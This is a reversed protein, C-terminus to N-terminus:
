SGVFMRFYINYVMYGMIISCVNWKSLLHFAVWFYNGVMDHQKYLIYMYLLDIGDCWLLYMKDWLLLLFIHLSQYVYVYFFLFKILDLPSTQNNKKRINKCSKIDNQLNTIHFPKLQSLFFLVCNILMLIMKWM